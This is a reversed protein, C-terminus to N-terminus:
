STALIFLDSSEIKFPHFNLKLGNDDVAAYNGENNEQPHDM